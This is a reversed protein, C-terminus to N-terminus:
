RSSVSNLEAANIALGSKILGFLDFHKSLLYRFTEPSYEWAGGPITNNWDTGDINRKEEETMDNVSRLIPKIWEFSLSWVVKHLVKVNDFGSTNLDIGFLVGKKENYSDWVECGLYLHLYDEIKKEM